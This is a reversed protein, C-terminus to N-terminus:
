PLLVNTMHIAYLYVTILVNRCRPRSLNKLTPEFAPMWRFCALRRRSCSPRSSAAAPGASISRGPHFSCGESALERTMPGHPDIFVPSQGEREFARVGSEDIVLVIV